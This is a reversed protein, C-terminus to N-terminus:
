CDLGKWMLVLIKMLVLLIYKRDWEMFYKFFLLIKNEKFKKKDKYDRIM